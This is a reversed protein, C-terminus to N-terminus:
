ATKEQAQGNLLLDEQASRIERALMLAAKVSTRADSVNERVPRSLAIENEVDALKEGADLLWKILTELDRNGWSPYPNAM